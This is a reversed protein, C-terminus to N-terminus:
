SLVEVQGYVGPRELGDAYRKEAIVRAVQCDDAWGASDTIADHVARVLKEIDGGDHNWCWPVAVQARTHSKPRAYVFTLTTQLPGAFPLRNRLANKVATCITARWEKLRADAQDVTWQLCSCKGDPLVHGHRHRVVMSGKPVPRGRVYFSITAPPTAVVM